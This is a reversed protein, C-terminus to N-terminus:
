LVPHLKYGGKFGRVGYFFEVLGWGKVGTGMRFTAICEHTIGVTPKMTSNLSPNYILPSNKSDLNVSVDFTQGGATFSIDYNEKIDRDDALNSLHSDSWEIGAKKGDPFFVYGV